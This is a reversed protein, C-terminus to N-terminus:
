PKTEPPKGGLKSLRDNLMEIQKRLAAIEDLMDSVRAESAALQTALYHKGTPLQEKAQAYAATSALLMIFALKLM